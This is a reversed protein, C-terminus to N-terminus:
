AGEPPKELAAIFRDTAALTDAIAEGAVDYGSPAGSMEFLLARKSHAAFANAFVRTAIRERQVRKREDEQNFRKIAEPARM